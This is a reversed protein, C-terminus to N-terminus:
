EYDGDHGENKDGDHGENEDGDDGENEDSESSSEVIAASKEVTKKTRMKQPKYITEGAAQRAHNSTIRDALEEETLKMWKCTENILTNILLQVSKCGGIRSPNWVPLLEFPWGKLEVGYHEVIAREYNTYNMKAHNTLKNERLIFDADVDAVIFVRHYLHHEGLEDQILTQCESVLQNLSKKETSITPIDEAAPISCWWFCM